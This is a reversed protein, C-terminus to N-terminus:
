REANMQINETNVIYIYISIALCKVITNCFTRLETLFHSKLQRRIGYSFFTVRIKIKGASKTETERAINHIIKLLKGRSCLKEQDNYV